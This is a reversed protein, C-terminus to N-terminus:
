RPVVTPGEPVRAVCLISQGFPPNWRREMLRVLPVAVRDYLEVLGKRPSACGGVRVALWWAIGGLFNVTRLHEIRLGAETIASRLTGPVYRRVHGAARDHPGYLSPFAPVFLVVTGGPRTLGAMRRLAGRDDEIHELVNVALVTDVDPLAPPPERLDLAVVDVDARDAFRQRLLELCRADVDTVTLHECGDLEAALDGLGSGVELIRRGLHPQLLEILYRRYRVAESM